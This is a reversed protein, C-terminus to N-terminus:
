FFSSINGQLDIFFNLHDMVMCYATLYSILILLHVDIYSLENCVCVCVCVCVGYVFQMNRGNMRGDVYFHM